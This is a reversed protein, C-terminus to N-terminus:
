CPVTEALVASQGRCAHDVELPREDLAGYGIRRRDLRDDADGPGDYKVSPGILTPGVYVNFKDRATMAAPNYYSSNPEDPNAAGVGGLGTSTASQATNAFGAAFVWSPALLLGGLVGAAFFRRKMKM